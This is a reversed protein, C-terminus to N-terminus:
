PKTKRRGNRRLINAVTTDSLHIELKKLDRQIKDYGWTNERALRCVLSEVDVSIRPRGPSRKRKDSYDWKEKNIRRQWALITDPKVINVVTEMLARGMSVASDILARRDTDDLPVRGPIKSRLIRNETRLYENQLTLEKCLHRAVTAIFPVKLWIPQNHASTSEDM